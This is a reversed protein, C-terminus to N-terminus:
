GLDTLTKTDGDWFRAGAVGATAPVPVEALAELALGVREPTLRRSVTVHPTWRDPLTHEEGGPMVGHVARHFAALGADTVVQRALVFRGRGAAFLAFGGFRVSQPRDLVVAQLGPALGATVWAGVTVHPRNSPADHLALSPLGADALADWWARVAADGAPDLVLEVSRM